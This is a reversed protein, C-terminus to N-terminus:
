DEDYDYDDDGGQEVGWTSYDPSEAAKYEEVLSSVVERSSVFHPLYLPPCCFSITLAGYELILMSSM